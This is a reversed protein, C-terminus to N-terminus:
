YLAFMIKMMEDFHVYSTRTMAYSVFQENPTLCCDSV